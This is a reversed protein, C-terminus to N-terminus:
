VKKEEAVKAGTQKKYYGKYEVLGIDCGSGITVNDGRVVKATTNELTIDNGEIVEAELAPFYSPLLAKVIGLGTTGLSVRIKEGGIEKARSRNWYLHIDIDDASLLGGVEFLGTSYFSESNCDGGIKVSGNVKVKQANVSKKIDATGTVILEECNVASGFSGSGNVKAEGCKLDGGIRGAGNIKVAGCEVGDTAEGSGNIIFDVCDLAGTIRGSGNIRVLNYAGGSATGSGSIKLDPKQSNDSM